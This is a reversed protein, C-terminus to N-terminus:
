KPMKSILLKLETRSEEGSHQSDQKLNSNQMLHSCALVVFQAIIFDLKTKPGSCAQLLDRWQNPKSSSTSIPHFTSEKHKIILKGSLIM